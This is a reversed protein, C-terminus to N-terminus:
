LCWWKRVRMSTYGPKHVPVAPVQNRGHHRPGCNPLSLTQPLNSDRSPGKVQMFSVQASFVQLDGKGIPIGAHPKEMPGVDNRIGVENM